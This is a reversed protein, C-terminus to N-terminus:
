LMISGSTCLTHLPVSPSATEKTLYSNGNSGTMKQLAMLCTIGDCVVGIYGGEIVLLTM